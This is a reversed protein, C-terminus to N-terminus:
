FSPIRRVSQGVRIDHHGFNAALSAPIRLMESGSLAIREIFLEVAKSGPRALVYSPYYFADVRGPDHVIAAISWSTRHCFATVAGIVGFNMGASAKHEAFDHGVILGDSKMKPSFAALDSLVAQFHHMADIFIWDFYGDPFDRAADHSFARHLVTQGCEISDHFKARVEDYRANQESQKANGHTDAAYDQDDAHHHWPDILHLREPKAHDLISRANGGERVGIEAVVGHNPLASNMQRRSAFILYMSDM